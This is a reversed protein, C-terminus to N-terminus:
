IRLTVAPIEPLSGHARAAPRGTPHSKPVQAVNDLFNGSFTEASQSQRTRHAV